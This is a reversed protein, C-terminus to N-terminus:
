RVARLANVLGGGYFSNNRDPGSCGPSEDCPVPDARDALLRALRAPSAGPYRGALLAAVGTAHPAAMSTGCKTGYGGGVVASLPCFAGEGPPPLQAGDGGPAAVDVEGPGFNSYSAKTGAYGVASVTVVGDIGQPLIACGGDLPRGRVPDTTQAPIDFGSNGAAVVNLVGHGTAYSVARRVAEFAASDGPQGPCYFMGPDIYYSSNTVQFRHEAAWMFGCVAAEPFIYGTEAVVKVSALRVGPAIGSFGRAADRGAITGAVHTGHDSSTPAWAAPSRDPAGKVCGVSTTPDIANRLAPHTPEIGSDIVGVTVSRSGQDIKNAETAKIARMDWQQAALDEAAPVDSTREMARAAGSASRAAARSSAPATAPPVAMERGASYARRPGITAAFDANRSAAVAVGIEPYYAVPAACHSRLEAEARSPPTRPRFLVVYSYPASSTDCQPPAAAQRTAAPAEPAEPTAAAAPTVLGTAVTVALATAVPLRWRRKPFM